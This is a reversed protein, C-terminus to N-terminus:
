RGLRFDDEAERKRHAEIDYRYREVLEQAWARANSDHLDNLWGVARALEGELAQWYPGWVVGLTNFFCSFAESELGDLLPSTVVLRTLPHPAIGRWDLHHLAARQEDPELANLAGFVQQAGVAEALRALLRLDRSVFISFSTDGAAEDRVLQIAITLAQEPDRKIAADTLTYDLEDPLGHRHRLRERWLEVVQDSTFVGDEVLKGVLYDDMAEGGARVAARAAEFALAQVAPGPEGHEMIQTLITLASDHDREAILGAIVRAVTDDTLNQTRAGIMLARLPLMSLGRETAVDLVLRLRDDRTGAYQVLHV